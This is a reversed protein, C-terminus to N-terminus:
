SIVNKDTYANLTQKQLELTMGLIIYSRAKLWQRVVVKM